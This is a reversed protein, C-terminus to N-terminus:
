QKLYDQHCAQCAEMVKGMAVPAAKHDHHRAARALGSSAVELARIKHKFDDLNSAVDKATNSGEISGPVLFWDLYGQSLQNIQEAQVMMKLGNFPKKGQAMALMDNMYVDMLQHIQQRYHIAQQPDSYPDQRAEAHSNISFGFFVSLALGFRLKSM